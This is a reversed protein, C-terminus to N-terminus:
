SSAICFTCFVPDLPLGEGVGRANLEKNGGRGALLPRRLLMTTGSEGGPDPPPPVWNGISSKM